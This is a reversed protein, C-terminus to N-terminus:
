SCQTPTKSRTLPIRLVYTNGAGDVAVTNGIDAQKDPGDYFALWIEPGNLQPASNAQFARGAPSPQFVFGIAFVLTLALKDIKLTNM